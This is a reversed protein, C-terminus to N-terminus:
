TVLFDIGNPLYPLKRDPEQGYAANLGQMFLSYFGEHRMNSQEISKPMFGKIFGKDLFPQLLIDNKCIIHIPTEFGMAEKALGMPQHDGYLIIIADDTIYNTVYDELSELQYKIATTYREKLSGYTARSDIERKQNLSKWNEVVESPTYYPHHSNLTGFFLSYPLKAEQQIIEYAKNISYQDPSINILNMWKWRKGKYDLKKFDLCDDYQFTNQLMEWDLPDGPGYELPALMYNFYGEKKLFHLLSQYARFGQIQKFFLKYLENDNIKFGYLFSSYSMWSGGTHVPSESLGTVVHYGKSTLCKEFREYITEVVPAITADKLVVSGYSEVSFIQINPRKSLKLDKYINFSEFHAKGKELFVNYRNSYKFNRYLYGIASISTRYHYKVYPTKFFKFFTPLSIILATSVIWIKDATPQASLLIKTFFYCSYFLLLIILFIGIFVGYKIRQIILIGTKAFEINSKISPARKFIYCMAYSYILLIWGFGGILGGIIHSANTNWGIFSCLLIYITFDYHIRFPDSSVRLYLQGLRTKNLRNKNSLLHFPIPSAQERINLLYPILFFVINIIFLLIWFTM